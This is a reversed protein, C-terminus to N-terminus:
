CTWPNCGDDCCGVCDETCDAVWTDQSCEPTGHAFEAKYYIQGSCVNAYFLGVCNCDSGCRDNTCDYYSAQWNISGDFEQVILAAENSRKGPVTAYAVDNNPEVTFFVDGHTSEFTTSIQNRAGDDDEFILVEYGEYLDDDDEAAVLGDIQLNSADATPLYSEAALEELLPAAIEAVLSQVHAPDQYQRELASSRYRDFRTGDFSSDFDAPDTTEASATGGAAVAAGTAGGVSKLVTRRSLDGEGFDDSM